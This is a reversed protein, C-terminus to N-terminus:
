WSIRRLAALVPHQPSPMDISVSALGLRDLALVFLWHVYEDPLHVAVTGGARIGLAALRAGVKDIQADFEGYRVPGNPVVVAVHDPRTKARFSIWENYM